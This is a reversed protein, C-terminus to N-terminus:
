AHEAIKRELVQKPVAGIVQDVVKGDRFFLVTPLSRVGFQAATRPNDDVDLKGVKVRGAYEDALQDVFPGIIRCPGCWSAGFDVVALSAVTAIEEAFNDDTVTVTNASVAV